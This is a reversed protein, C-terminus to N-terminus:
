KSSEYMNSIYNDRAYHNAYMIQIM